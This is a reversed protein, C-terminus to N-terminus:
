YPVYPQNSYGLIKIKKSGELPIQAYFAKLTDDTNARRGAPPDMTMVDFKISLNSYHAAWILKACQHQYECDVSLNKAEIVESSSIKKHGNIYAVKVDPSVDVRKNKINQQLFKFRENNYSPTRGFVFVHNYKKHPPNIDQVMSMDDFFPKMQTHKRDQQMSKMDQHYVGSARLFNKTFLCEM